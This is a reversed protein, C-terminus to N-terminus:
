SPLPPMCAQLTRAREIRELARRIRESTWLSADSSGGVIADFSPALRRHREIMLDGDVVAVIRNYRAILADLVLLPSSADREEAPTNSLMTQFPVPRTSLIEGATRLFERLAGELAGLDNAGGAYRRPMMDLKV